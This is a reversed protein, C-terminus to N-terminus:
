KGAKLFGKFRDVVSGGGGGDGGVAVAEAEEPETRIDCRGGEQGSLEGQGNDKGAENDDLLEELGQLSIKEAGFLAESAKGLDGFHKQLGKAIVRLVNINDRMSMAIDRLDVEKFHSCVIEMDAWIDEGVARVKRSFDLDQGLIRKGTEDYHDKFCPGFRKWVAEIVSRHVLMCAAGIGDIKVVPYTPQEYIGKDPTWMGSAKEAMVPMWLVGKSISFTVGCVVNKGHSLLRNLAGQPPVTDSDITYYWECKRADPHTLFTEVTCNRSYDTPRAVQRNQVIRNGSGLIESEIYHSLDVREYGTSPVCIFVNQPKPSSKRSKRAKKKRVVKLKKRATLVPRRRSSRCGRM